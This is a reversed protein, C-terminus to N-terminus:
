HETWNYRLRDLDMVIGVPARVSAAGPYESGNTPWTIPIPKCSCFCTSKSRFREIEFVVHVSHAAFSVFAKM